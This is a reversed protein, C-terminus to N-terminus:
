VITAVRINEKYITKNPVKTCLGLMLGPKVAM